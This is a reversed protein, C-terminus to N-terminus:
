DGSDMDYGDGCHVCRYRWYCRGAQTGVYKHVCATGDARAPVLGTGRAMMTQGGCNGCWLTDTAPDYGHMMAKYKSDGAPVRGTGQCIPCPLQPTM